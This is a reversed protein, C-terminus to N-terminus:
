PALAPCLREPASWDIGDPSTMVSLMSGTDSTYNTAAMM